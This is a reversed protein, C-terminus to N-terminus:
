VARELFDPNFIGATNKLRYGVVYGYYNVIRREIKRTKGILPAMKEKWEYGVPVYEHSGDLIRVRDGVSFLKGEKVWRDLMQPNEEIDILKGDFWRFTSM